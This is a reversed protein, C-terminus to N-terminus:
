EDTLRKVEQRFMERQLCCDLEHCLGRCTELNGQWRTFNKWERDHGEGDYKTGIFIAPSCRKLLETLLDNTPIVEVDLMSRNRETIDLMM